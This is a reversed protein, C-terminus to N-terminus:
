HIPGKLRGLLAGDPHSLQELSGSEHSTAPDRNEWVHSTVGSLAFNLIQSHGPLYLEKLHLMRM